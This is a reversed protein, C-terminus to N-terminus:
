FRFPWAGLPEWPGGDYAHLALGRIAIPRPKFDASLTEFLSRAEASNVKNQITIHARWGARDQASLAGSFRDALEARISALDPSVIRYAVGKGLHIIGGCSATPARGAAYGKLADRVEAELSPPLAHFM